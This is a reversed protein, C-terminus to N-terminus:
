FFFFVKLSSNWKNKLSFKKASIIIEYQCADMTLYVQWQTPLRFWTWFYSMMTLLLVRKNLAYSWPYLCFWLVYLWWDIQLYRQSGQLSYVSWLHSAWMLLELSVCLQHKWILLQCQGYPRCFNYIISFVTDPFKKIIVCNSM